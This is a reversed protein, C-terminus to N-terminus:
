HRSQKKIWDVLDYFRPDRVCGLLFWAVAGLLLLPLVMGLLSLLFGLGLLVGIAVAAWYLPTPIRAVFRDLSEKGWHFM